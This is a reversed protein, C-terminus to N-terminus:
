VFSKGYGRYTKWEDIIRGQSVVVVSDTFEAQEGAKAHRFWVHDGLRLNQAASGSIPTQVEGAGEMNSLSLGQPWDIVPLRDAGMAGSAIRGGGAVTVTRPAPRRVVPLVLWQAPLPQFTRYHDFLGPGLVGSGAGIETIAEEARTSEIAGTGGGNVFELRGGSEALVRQVTAVVKRRRLSLEKSSVAKMARVARSTDTTGAIQGEYAMLGVLRFGPRQTIALALQQAQQTSHLPSRRAGIHVPGCSLSADIDICVRGDPHNPALADIFDLHEVSDVVLTIAQLAREDRVLELLAGRHVCPYAVVIDETLNM